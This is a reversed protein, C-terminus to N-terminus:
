NKDESGEDNFADDLEKEFWTELPKGYLDDYIFLTVAGDFSNGEALGESITARLLEKYIFNIRPDDDPYQTSGEIVNDALIARFRFRTRRIEGM